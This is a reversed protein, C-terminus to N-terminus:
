RVAQEKEDNIRQIDGLLNAHETETSSVDSRARNLVEQLAANLDACPGKVPFAKVLSM